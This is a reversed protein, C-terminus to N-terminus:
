GINERSLGPFGYSVVEKIKDYNDFVNNDQYFAKGGALTDLMMMKVQNYRDRSDYLAKAICRFGCNDDGSPNFIDKVKSSVLSKSLTLFNWKQEAEGWKELTKVKKKEAAEIWEKAILGRKSSQPRDRRKALVPPPEM